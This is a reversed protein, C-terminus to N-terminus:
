EEGCKYKKNLLVKTNQTVKCLQLLNLVRLKKWQLSSGFIHYAWTYFILAINKTKTPRADPNGSTWTENESIWKDWFCCINEYPWWYTCNLDISSEYIGKYKRFSIEFSPETETSWRM